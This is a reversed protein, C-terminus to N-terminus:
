GDLQTINDFSCQRPSLIRAKECLFRLTYINRENENSKGYNLSEKERSLEESLIKVKKSFFM